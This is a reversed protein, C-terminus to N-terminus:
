VRHCKKIITANLMQHLPLDRVCIFVIGPLLLQELGSVIRIHLTHIAIAVTDALGVNWGNNVHHLVM